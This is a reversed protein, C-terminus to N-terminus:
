VYERRAAPSIRRGRRRPVLTRARTMRPDHQPSARGLVRRECSLAPPVTAAAAAESPQAPYESPQAPYEAEEPYESTPAGRPAELTQLGSKCGRACGFKSHLFWLFSTLAVGVVFSVFSIVFVMETAVGKLVLVSSSSSGDPTRVSAHTRSATPQHQFLQLLEAQDCYLSPKTCMNNIYRENLLGGGVKSLAPQPLAGAACVGVTCQLTWRWADALESGVMSVTFTFSATVPNVTVSPIAACSKRVIEVRASSETRMKQGFSKGKNKSKRPGDM